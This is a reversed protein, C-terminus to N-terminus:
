GACDKAVPKLRHDNPRGQERELAPKLRAERDSSEDMVDRMRLWVGDKAAYSRRQWGKREARIDKELARGGAFHTAAFDHCIRCTEKLADM